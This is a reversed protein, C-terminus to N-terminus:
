APVPSAKTLLDRFEALSDLSLSQAMLTQQEGDLRTRKALRTMEGANELLIVMHEAHMYQCINDPHM